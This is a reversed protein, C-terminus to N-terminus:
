SDGSDSALNFPQIRGEEGNCDIDGKHVARRGRQVGDKYCNCLMAKSVEWTKRVLGSDVSPNAMRAGKWAGLCGTTWFGVQVVLYAGGTALIAKGVWVLWQTHLFLDAVSWSDGDEGDQPHWVPQSVNWEM